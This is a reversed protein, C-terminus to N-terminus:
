HKAIIFYILYRSLIFNNFFSSAAECLWPSPSQKGRFNMREFVVGWQAAILLHSRRSTIPNSSTTLTSGILNISKYSDPSLKSEKGARQLTFICHSAPERCGPLCNEGSSLWAPMKIQSLWGGSSHPSCKNQKYAM